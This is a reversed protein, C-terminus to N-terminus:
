CPLRCCWLEVGTKDGSVVILRLLPAAESNRVEVYCRIINTHCRLAIGNHTYPNLLIENYSIDDYIYLVNGNCRNM